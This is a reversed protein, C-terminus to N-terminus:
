FLVDEWVGPPRGTNAELMCMARFDTHALLVFVAVFLEVLDKAPRHGSRLDLRM